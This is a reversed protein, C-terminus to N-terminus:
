SWWSKNNAYDVRFAQTHGCENCVLVRWDSGGIPTFGFNRVQQNNNVKFVYKGYGCYTCPQPENKGVPTFEKHILRTARKILISINKIDRRMNPDVLIMLDLIRNIHEMYINDWGLNLISDENRSRLDFAIDRHKERSFMKGKSLLWYLFKGMSYVDVKDSINDFKGDELEPAMFNIAGVAENTLTVRTGDDINFVLGFDGIVAPGKQTRLFINSPKIDRHIIKESHALILGQCVEQFINLALQPSNEWFPEVKDLSGGSCYESVFYPKDGDLNFDILNLINIHNLNRIAEIEDIFRDIRNINKLRKLVYHIEGKGLLDKVLYTHAQGGEGLAKITEWRDNYTKPM